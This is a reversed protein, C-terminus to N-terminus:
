DDSRTVAFTGSELVKGKGVLKEGGLRALVSYLQAAGERTKEDWKETSFTPCCEGVKQPAVTKM